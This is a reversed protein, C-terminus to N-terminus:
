YNKNNDTMSKKLCKSIQNNNENQLCHLRALSDFHDGIARKEDMEVLM